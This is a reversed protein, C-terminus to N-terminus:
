WEDLDSCVLIFFFQKLQRLVASESSFWFTGNQCLFLETLKMMIHSVNKKRGTAAKKMGVWSFNRENKSECAVSQIEGAWGVVSIQGCSDVVVM